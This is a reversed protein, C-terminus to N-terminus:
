FSFRCAGIRLRVLGCIVLMVQQYTSSHLRFRESAIRFIKVIRILHEVYIRSQSLRKNEAKKGPTLKQKPPKKHPTKTREAGQDGLDGKFAQEDSFNQQQRRLLNVDAEPGREGVIVDVIDEGHPLTIFQNKFTHAQQKGSYYKEQEEPDKPRQRRQESSDVLLQYSTLLNKVFEDDQISNKWDELLSSPLLDRLIPLWYHFLANATTRCVGFMMGLVEFIPMQRLYFLTLYIEEEQSLSKPRGAGKQNVRNKGRETERKLQHAKTIAQKILQELQALSLGIIQKALKPRNRIYELPNAM